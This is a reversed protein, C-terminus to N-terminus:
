EFYLVCMEAINRLQAM